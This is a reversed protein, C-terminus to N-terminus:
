KKYESKLKFNFKTKFKAIKPAVVASCYPTHLHEKYYNQHYDEAPYFATLPEIYTVYKGKWLDTGESKKMSEQALIKQKENRYFIISRYQTGIDNGQRNLQTPDHLFWFVDLLESLSIEEPDYEIQVVEAHGTDGTSVQSYTPYETMGGAYGSTVSSVGKLMEFCTSVCWFCGGGLTIKELRKDMNYDKEQPQSIQCGVCFLMLSLIYLVGEKM